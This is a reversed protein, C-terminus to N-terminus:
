TGHAAEGFYRVEAARRAAVAEEKTAFLGLYHNKRHATIQARWPKKAPKPEYDIRERCNPCFWDWMWHPPREGMDEREYDDRQPDYFYTVTQECNGIVGDSLDANCKPCRDAPKAYGLREASEMLRMDRVSDDKIALLCSNCLMGESDAPSVVETVNPCGPTYCRQKRPFPRNDPGDVDMWDAM